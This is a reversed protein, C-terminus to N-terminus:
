AVAKKKRRWGLLGLTGLGTAFLPLAGPLPVPSTVPSSQVSIGSFGTNVTDSGTAVWKFGTILQDSTFGLYGRDALNTAPDLGLGPIVLTAIPVGSGEVTLTLPGLGNFYADFGVAHYQASFAATINENGSATLIFQTTPLTVNAGYTFASSPPTVILIDAANASTYTGSPLTLGSPFPGSVSSFNELLAAGPAAAFFSAQDIYFTTAAESAASLFWISGSLAILVSLHKHFSIM